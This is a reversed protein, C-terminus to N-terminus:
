PTLKTSNTSAKLRMPVARVPAYKEVAGKTPAAADKTMHRSGTVM